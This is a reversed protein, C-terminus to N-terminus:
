RSRRAELRARQERYKKIRGTFEVFLGISKLGWGVQFIGLLTGFGGSVINLVGLAIITLGDVILTGIRGRLAIVLIGEIFLWGSLAYIYVPPIRLAETGQESVAAWTLITNVVAWVVSAIGAEMQQFLLAEQPNEDLVNAAEVADSEVQQYAEQGLSVCVGHSKWVHRPRITWFRPKSQTLETQCVANAGMDAAQLRIRDAVYDLSPPECEGPTALEFDLEGFVKHPKPANAWVLKVGAAKTRDDDSLEFKQKRPPIALAIALGFISLTCGLLVYLYWKRGKATALRYCIIAHFGYFLILLVVVYAILFTNEPM